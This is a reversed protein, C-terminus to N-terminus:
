HLINLVFNCKSHKRQLYRREGRGDTFINGNKVIFIFAWILCLSLFTVLEKTRQWFM